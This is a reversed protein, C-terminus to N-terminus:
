YLIPFFVHSMRQVSYISYAIVVVALIDPHSSIINELNVPSVKAGGVIIVDSMRGTVVLQDDDRL